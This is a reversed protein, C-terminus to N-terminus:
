ILTKLKEIYWQAKSLDTALGKNEYRWLYKIANGKCYGKFQENSMSAQIADICEVIGSKYHAPNVADEKTNSKWDFSM